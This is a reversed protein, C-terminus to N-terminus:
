RWANSGYGARILETAFSLMGAYGTNLHKKIISELEPPEDYISIDKIQNTLIECLPLTKNYTFAFYHGIHIPIGKLSELPNGSCYFSGGVWQPAGILDELGCSSCNYQEGVWVPGGKLSGLRPNGSCSFIKGVIQPSGELTDLDNERVLFNEGVQYPSGELTKLNNSQCWFNGSIRRFRVPLSEVPKALKVNGNVSVYGDDAIEYNGTIEFNKRFKDLIQKKDVTM